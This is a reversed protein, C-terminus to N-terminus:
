LQPTPYSSQIEHTHTHTYKSNHMNGELIILFSQQARGGLPKSPGTLFATSSCLTLLIETQLSFVELVLENFGRLDTGQYVHYKHQKMQWKLM